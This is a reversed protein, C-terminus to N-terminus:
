INVSTSFRSNDNTQTLHQLSGKYNYKKTCYNAQINHQKLLSNDWVTECAPSTKM